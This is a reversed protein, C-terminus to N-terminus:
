AVEMDGGLGTMLAVYDPFTVNMAEATDVTLPEELGLGALALAMVIRHDHWGKVPQAKLDGGEVILGDPLEAVNAGLKALELAMCHIRDTEKNRAQPCNLLKTTGQAFAATVALAPLADPTNNMDIEIGTLPRGRVVVADKELTLDAGMAQLYDVVAKDPQSDQFDLGKLHVEEGFLAAGCLFFTASSFDAPAARDFPTYHQGGKIVFHKMGESSYEIEQQRLWDLTIEVYGPENLLTLHIESDQRALPACLLLSTLYQSTPAELDTQGGVFGGSIEVPPKGNGKVSKCRAGLNQLASLLPGIPRNQIQQDGTFICTQDAAALSASGVAIRLTTGSNGVDITEQPLRPRSGTGVVTWRQPNTTDVSAGLMGYCQAASLTDTSILPRRITSQGEALAAIAVMRVTHSKSAPIQVSGHLQSKRAILNM